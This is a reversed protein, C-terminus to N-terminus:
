KNKRTQQLFDHTFRLAPEPESVVKLLSARGGFPNPVTEPALPDPFFEGDVVLSYEHTGIPLVTERVWRGNGVPHMPKADPLWNDFTRAIYVSGAEPDTFDFRIPLSHPADGPADDFNHNHKM